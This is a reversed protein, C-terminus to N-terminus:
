PKACRETIGFDPPAHSGLRLREDVAGTPARKLGPTAPMTAPPLALNGFVLIRRHSRAQVSLGTLAPTAESSKQAVPRTAAM